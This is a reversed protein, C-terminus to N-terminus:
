GWTKQGGTQQGTKAVKRNREIGVRTPVAQQRPRGLPPRFRKGVHELCLMLHGELVLCALGPRPCHRPTHVKSGPCSRLPGWGPRQHGLCALVVQRTNVPAPHASAGAALGECCARPWTPAAKFRWWRRMDTPVLLNRSLM